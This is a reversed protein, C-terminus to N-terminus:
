ALNRAIEELRSKRATIEKQALEVRARLGRDPEDIADRREALLHGLADFDIDPPVEFTTHEPLSLLKQQAKQLDLPVSSLRQVFMMATKSAETSIEYREIAAQYTDIVEQKLKPELETESQAHKLRTQLEALTPPSQGGPQAMAAGYSALFIFTVVAGQAFTRRCRGMM